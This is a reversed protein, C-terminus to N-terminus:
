GNTLGTAWQQVTEALELMVDNERKGTRKPVKFSHDGEEILHLTARDGLKRV